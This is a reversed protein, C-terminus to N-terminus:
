KDNGRVWWWGVVEQQWVNLGRCITKTKALLGRCITNTKALMISLDPNSPNESEGAGCEIAAVM